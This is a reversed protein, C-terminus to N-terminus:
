RKFTYRGGRSRRINKRGRMEERGGGRRGMMMFDGKERRSKDERVM